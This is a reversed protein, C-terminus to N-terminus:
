FRMRALQRDCSLSAGNVTVLLVVGETGACFRLIDIQDVALNGSVGVKHRCDRDVFEFRLQEIM